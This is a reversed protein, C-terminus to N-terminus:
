SAVGSVRLRPCDDAHAQIWVRSEDDVIFEVPGKMRGDITVLAAECTSCRGLYAHVTIVRNTELSV